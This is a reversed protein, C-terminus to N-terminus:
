KGYIAYKWATHTISPSNSYELIKVVNKCPIHKTSDDNPCTRSIAEKRINYKRGHM